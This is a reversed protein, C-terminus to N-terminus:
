AQACATARSPKGALSAASRASGPTPLTCPPPSQPWRKRHAPQPRRHCHRARSQAATRPRAAKAPPSVPSGCAQPPRSVWRFPGAVVRLGHHVESGRNARRARWGTQNARCSRKAGCGSAAFGLAEGDFRSLGFSRDPAAISEHDNACNPAIRVNKQPPSFVLPRSPPMISTGHESHTASAGSAVEGESPVQFSPRVTCCVKM